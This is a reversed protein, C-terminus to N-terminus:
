KLSKLYKNLKSSYRGAYYSLTRSGNVANLFASYTGNSLSSSSPGFMICFDYVPNELVLEIMDPTYIGTIYDKMALKTFQNQSYGYSAAFLAQLVYGSTDINPSSSLFAMVPMNVSTPTYYKDQGEHKPYPLVEFDFGANALADMDSLTGFACLSNGGSFIEFGQCTAENVKVEETIKPLLTKLLSVISETKTNVFSSKLVGSDYKLFTSSSSGFVSVSLDNKSMSSSLANIGDPVANLYEFLSDFSFNGSYIESYDLTIGNEKALTKNFFLCLMQGPDETYSGVAGYVVNGITLQSIGQTNFYEKNLDTYPLTKINMIYGSSHYAGINSGGILVFDACYGHAKDTAAVEDKLSSAPKYVTVIKTNYKDEVLSNRYVNAQSYPGETDSFYEGRESECAIIVSLANLNADYLEDVREKALQGRDGESVVPYEPPIYDTEPINETEKETESETQEHRVNITVIGCSTLYVTALILCLLKIKKM